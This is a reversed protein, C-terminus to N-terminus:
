FPILEFYWTYQAAYNRKINLIESFIVCAVALALEGMVTAKLQSVKVPWWCFGKHWPEFQDM